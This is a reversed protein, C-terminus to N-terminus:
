AAVDDGNFDFSAAILGVDPIAQSLGLLAVLAGLLIAEELKPGDVINEIEIEGFRSFDGVM